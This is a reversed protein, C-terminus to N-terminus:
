DKSNWYRSHELALKIDKEPYGQELLWKTFAENNTLIHTPIEKPFGYLWGSPPDVITPM